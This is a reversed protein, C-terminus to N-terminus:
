DSYETLKVRFEDDDFQDFTYSYLNVPIDPSLCVEYVLNDDMRMLLNNGTQGAFTKRGSAEIEFNGIATNDGVKELNAGEFNELVSVYCHTWLRSIHQGPTNNAIGTGLLNYIWDDDTHSCTGSSEEDQFEGEYDFTFDDGSKRVSVQIWHVAGPKGPPEKTSDQWWLWTNKTRVTSGKM